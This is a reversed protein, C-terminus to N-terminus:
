QLAFGLDLALGISGAPQKIAPRYVFLKQNFWIYGTAVGPYMM